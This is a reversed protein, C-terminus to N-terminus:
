RVQSYNLAAARRQLRLVDVYDEGRHREAGQLLLEQRVAKLTSDSKLEELVTVLAAVSREDTALATIFPLSPSRPSWGLVRLTSTQAPRHRRFHAWSVCDVATLDAHGSAVMQVSRWHSGSMTVSRFFAVGRALPAVAARLLNMGSNSTSDNLVCRGGRLDRLREASDRARVVFASRYYGGECGEAAYCPTAIPRAYGAHVTALPFECGQGLLLRPHRWSDEHSLHRSLRAPVGSLGFQSMRQALWSWLADHAATLEPMEYMPLAAIREIAEM